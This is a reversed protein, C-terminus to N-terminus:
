IREHKRNLQPRFRGIATAEALRTELPNRCKRIINVSFDTIKMIKSPHEKAAHESLASIKNNLNLSRAHESYRIKFPRCTEGIYFAKCEECTFRYVLFRDDCRFRDPLNFCLDCNEHKKFHPGEGLCHKLYKAPKSALQIKFDYKKLIKNIKRNCSDSIFELELLTAKEKQKESIKNKKPGPINKFGNQKLRQCLQRNARERLVDSSCKKNVANVYNNVFNTKVHNPVFSDSRLSNQSHGPKTYWSYTVNRSKIELSVDLFNLSRDPKELTFKISDNVSNFTQLVTKPLDGEKEIPGILIDDIYRVYISPSFKFNSKLTELAITEIKHMTIIAFPPAFHAGMPCGKIQLYTKGNVNIEYNYCVFTLCKKLEDISLSWNDIEQWKENALEIVAEIGYAIEISPYLNIVDLSCFIKDQSLENKDIEEIMKLVEESNKVNAPVYNVLQTLIESILWDVKEVATSKVSAIPRLPFNDGSKNKHDKIFAQFNDPRSGSSLLRQKQFSPLTKCVSKILKNAQNEIRTQKSDVKKYTNEDQVIEELRLEFKEKDTVVLWNTKDSPIVTLNKDKLFRKSKILDNKFTKYKLSRKMKCSEEETVQLIERKMATLQSELDAPM